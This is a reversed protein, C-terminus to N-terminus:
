IRIARTGSENAPDDFQPGCSRRVLDPHSKADHAIRCIISFRVRIKACLLFLYLYYAKEKTSIARVLHIRSLRSTVKVSFKAFGKTYYLKSSEM